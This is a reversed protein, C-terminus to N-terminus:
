AADRPRHAHVIFQAAALLDEGLRRAEAATIVAVLSEAHHATGIVLHVGPPSAHVAQVYMVLEQGPPPAKDPDPAFLANADAIMM